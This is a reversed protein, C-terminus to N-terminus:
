RRWANLKDTIGCHAGEHMALDLSFPGVFVMGKDALRSVAATRCTANLRNCRLLAREVIGRAVTM